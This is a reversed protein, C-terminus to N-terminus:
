DRLNEIIVQSVPYYHEQLIPNVLDKSPFMKKSFTVPLEGVKEQGSVLNFTSENRKNSM